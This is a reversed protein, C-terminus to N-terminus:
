QSVPAALLPEIMEPFKRYDYIRIYDMGGLRVHSDNGGDDLDDGIFIIEDRTYGNEAAYRMIADYKNYKKETLDFSTSGGIFVSYDSFVECVERFMARRKAKDPDFALKEASPAATGLLGFTIMGTKHFEVPDGYYKTYGYKERLARCKALIDATDVPSTETRVIKWGEPTVKAEQMGYNGLIAIPYNGMQRHIREAGGGGVMLLDYREGLKDLALRNTDSLPTKHQTLTADLDMAVLRKQAGAAFAPASERLERSLKPGASNCAALAAMAAIICVIKKM